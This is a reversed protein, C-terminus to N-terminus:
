AKGEVARRLMILEKTMEAQQQRLWRLEVEVKELEKEVDDMSM